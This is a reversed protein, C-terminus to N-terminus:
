KVLLEASGPTKEKKLKDLTREYVSRGAQWIVCPVPKLLPIQCLELPKVTVLDGQLPIVIKIHERERGQELIEM